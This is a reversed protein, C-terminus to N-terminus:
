RLHPESNILSPAVHAASLACADPTAASSGTGGLNDLAPPCSRCSCRQLRPPLLRHFLTCAAALQRLLIYRRPVVHQRGETTCSAFHSRSIQIHLTRTYPAPRWSGRTSSALLSSRPQWPLPPPFSVHCRRRWAGICLELLLEVVQNLRHILSLASSCRANAAKLRNLPTRKCLGRSFHM